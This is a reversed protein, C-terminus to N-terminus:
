KIGIIRGDSSVNLGWSEVAATSPEAQIAEAFADVALYYGDETSLVIDTQTLSPTFTSPSLPVRYYYTDNEEDALWKDEDYDFSPVNASKYVRQGDSDVWYPVLRVRVYVNINGTNKVSIESKKNNEFLETLECSAKGAELTDDREETERFMYALVGIGTLALALVICILMILHKKNGM